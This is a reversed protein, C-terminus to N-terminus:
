ILLYSHRRPHYRCFIAHGLGLGLWGDGTQPCRHELIHCTIVTFVAHRWVLTVDGGMGGVKGGEGPQQGLAPVAEGGGSSIESYGPPFMGMQISPVMFLLFNTLKPATLCACVLWSSCGAPQPAASNYPSSMCLCQPTQLCLLDVTVNQWLNVYCSCQARTLGHNHKKKMQYWIRIFVSFAASVVFCVAKM